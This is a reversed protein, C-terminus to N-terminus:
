KELGLRPKKTNRKTAPHRNGEPERVEERVPDLANEGVDVVDLM